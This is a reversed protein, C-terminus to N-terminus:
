AIKEWIFSCAGGEKVELHGIMSRQSDAPVPSM